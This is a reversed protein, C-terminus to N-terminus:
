FEIFFIQNSQMRHLAVAAVVVVAVAVLLMLLLLLLLMNGLIDNKDTPLRIM